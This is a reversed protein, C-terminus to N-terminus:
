IVSDKCEYSIRAKQPINIEILVFLGNGHTRHAVSM